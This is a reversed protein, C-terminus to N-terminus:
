SAAGGRVERIAALIHDRLLNENVASRLADDSAYEGVLGGGEPDPNAAQPDQVGITVWLPLPTQDSTSDTKAEGEESSSTETSRAEGDRVEKIAALIYDKLPHEDVAGTLARDSEYEGVLAGEEADLSADALEEVGITVWLPLPYQEADATPQEPVV